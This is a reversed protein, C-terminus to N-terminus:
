VNFYYICCMLIIYKSLFWCYVFVCGWCDGGVLFWSGGSRSGCVVVVIVLGGVFELDLVEDFFFFSLVKLLVGGYVAYGAVVMGLCLGGGGGVPLVWWWWCFDM